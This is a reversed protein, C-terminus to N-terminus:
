AKFYQVYATFIAMASRSLSDVRVGHKTDTDKSDMKIGFEKDFLMVFSIAGSDMKMYLLFSDKVVLWSRVCVCVPLIKLLLKKNDYVEKFVMQSIYVYHSGKLIFVYIFLASSSRLNM